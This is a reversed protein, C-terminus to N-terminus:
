NSSLKQPAAIDEEAVVLVRIRYNDGTQEKFIEKSVIKISKDLSEVIKSYLEESTSEVVKEPDLSYSNEKVEYFTEKKILGKNGVIKDYTKFKNLTNKLYIKKGLVEIYLNTIEKGTREKKVGKVPVEKIEEYFTKAIVEGKAHVEYTSGEKGQQGKVLVQGTKVIDGSKVVSTGATTYVWVIQGDKKAVLDCPEEELVVVPPPTKEIANVILRSGEIRARFYMINDSDDIIKKQLRYVDIKSKSIGPTIGYSILQQRIEYPSLNNETQIDIRWIFTSLFYILSLFIFFGFVLAVRRRIKIFLFSLGRRNLIKIKTKTRKAIDDIIPFDRLNMDMSMTTINKKRINKIEIENKWLLNIFKEPIHSQIEITIIGKKYKHLRNM